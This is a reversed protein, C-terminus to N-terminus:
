GASRGAGSLACRLSCSLRSAASPMVTSVLGCSASGSAASVVIASIPRCASSVMSMPPPEAWTLGGYWALTASPSVASSPSATVTVSPTSTRLRCTGARLVKTLSGSVPSLPM